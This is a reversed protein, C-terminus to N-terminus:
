RISCVLLHFMGKRRLLIMLERKLGRSVVLTFSLSLVPGHLDKNELFRLNLFLTRNKFSNSCYFAECDLSIQLLLDTALYAVPVDDDDDDDDNGDM